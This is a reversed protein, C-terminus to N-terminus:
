KISFAVSLLYGARSFIFEIAVSTPCIFESGIYQDKVKGTDYQSLLREV